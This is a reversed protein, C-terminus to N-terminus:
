KRKGLTVKNQSCTNFNLKIDVSDFWLVMQAKIKHVELDKQKKEIIRIWKWFTIM